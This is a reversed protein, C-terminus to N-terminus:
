TGIDMVSIQANNTPVQFSAAGSFAQLDFAITSTAVATYVWVASGSVVQGAPVSSGTILRAPPESGAIAIRAQPVNTNTIQTGLIQATVLYKRGNVLPVSVTVPTGVSTGYSTTSGPGTATALLGQPGAPVWSGSVRTFLGPRVGAATPASLYVVMGDAPSGVGSDAAAENTYSALKFYKSATASDLTEGGVVTLGANATVLGSATVTAMAATGSVSPNSITPSTLTKNTLTQADSTGVVNGSVGHVGANSSTHASAEDFDQRVAVQDITAGGLHSIASTGDQGRVITATTGVINTVSIIEMSATGYELCAFFPYSSPWGAFSGSVSLSTGSNTIPGTLTQQPAANAYYRRTTM